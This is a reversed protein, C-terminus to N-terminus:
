KFIDSAAKLSKEFLVPEISSPVKRENLFRILHETRLNGLLEQGTMPCGGIGHIVSDYKRCGTDWAAELKQEWDRSSTHLHLGFEVEPFEPILTAYIDQILPADIEVSVNSLTIEQVGMGYLHDVSEMLLELNWPDGYPNGFGMSYYIVITRSKKAGTNLLSEVTRIAQEPTTNLNKQLFSASISFPFCLHTVGDIESVMEAGKPNVVLVMGNSRIGSFDLQKVVELTDALQPILRPSVMSGLEVTDFGVKLLETLYRVKRDTPIVYPLSQMAERPSEIVRVM